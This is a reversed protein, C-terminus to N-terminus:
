EEASEDARDEGGREMRDYGDKAKRKKKPEPEEKPREADIYARAENFVSVLEEDARNHVILQLGKLKRRAEAKDM